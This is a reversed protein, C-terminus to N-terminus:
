VDAFRVKANFLMNNTQRYLTLRDLAKPSNNTQNFNIVQTNAGGFAGTNRNLGTTGAAEKLTGRAGSIDSQWDLSTALTNSIEDAAEKISKIVSLLGIEFGEGTYEGLEEMVKSPSHIGLENKFATVLSNVIKKVDTTFYKADGGLGQLFGQMTQTGITKLTAPLSAFAKEIAADYDGAVKNLDSKYLNKSLQESLSLKKDYASSYAKLEADSMELLREIFAKGEEMNYSTIQNFLQSSVKGKIKNLSAAYTELDKIQDNLSSVRMVKANSVTFLEGTDKLKKALNEQKSLLDNFKTQYTNNIETISGGLVEKAKEKFEAVADSFGDILSLRSWDFGSEVSATMDDIAKTVMDANQSIGDAFGEATYAGLKKTVKSPSKIGLQKKFTAIMGDVFTKISKDMYKTNTTLGSVFGKLCQQGIKELEKDLGKFATKIEKNYEKEINTFDNKYIEKALKDAANLKATYAKNYANLEATSMKLLRDVFAEGEEMDYSAIQDFLEGSVKGKIKKLKEAYQKIQETQAKIDATTMLNANNLSFLNGADKLKEILSNQKNLLSDYRDNYKSTINEMTSNILDQAATQYENMASSFEGMFASSARQYANKMNQQTTIQKNYISQIQATQKTLRNQEAKVNKQAASQEAKIRKTESAQAAKLQKELTKLQKKQEETRKSTSIDKIKEIENQLKKQTKASEKEIKAQAKESQKTISAQIKASANQAAKVEKDSKKQLTSITKDFDALMKENKYQMWGSTYSMKKTLANSFSGSAKEAIEAFNYNNLKLLEGVVSKVMKKSTNVLQSELSAIGNIYGQTFNKGSKYTLKSPSGEQQADQLSKIADLGMDAAANVAYKTMSKIGNIYGEGFYVGSQTTLKSPSGEKQGTALGGWAARALSYAKDWAAQVLSGIGNIFGQAFNVGSTEADGSHSDAGSVAEGALSAGASNASSNNSSIANIYENAANNGPTQMASANSDAGSATEGAMNQGMTKYRDFNAQIVNTYEKSSNEGANKFDALKSIAGNATTQAAVEGSKKYDGTHSDIKNKYANAADEGASEFEGNQSKAGSVAEGAAQAGTSNFEGNYTQLTNTYSDAADEAASEFEGSQQKMGDATTSAIAGGEKNAASKKSDLGDIYDDSKEEAIKRWDGLGDFLALNGGVGLDSSAVTVRPMGNNLGNTLANTSDTAAQGNKEVWKDLEAGALENVRKYQNVLEDSVNGNKYLEQIDDLDNKTNVYQQLLEKKSALTHNVLGYQMSLLADNMKQANGETSASMADQYYEITNQANGWNQSAQALAANTEDLTNKAAELNKQAQGAKDAVMYPMNAGNQSYKLVEDIASNYENQAKTLNDQATKASEKAQKLDQFYKLENQLADKYHGEFAAFKAEIKKKEILDDISKGLKGNADINEKINEVTTDLSTALEELLYTALDEYGEKVKGNEDILENYQDKLSKIKDTEVDINNGTEKREEKQRKIAETSADISDILERQADSLGYAKEANEEWIKNQKESYAYLAMLSGVIAMIPLAAMNIGLLKTVAALAETATKASTLVGIFGSIATTVAVIKNSIFIVALVKGITKIINILRDSNNVVYLFFDAAKKAIDGIADGVKDWNVKDLATGFTEIGDRMSDKARNFLKIMIGEIKSKMLTLAGSVNDNMTDSMAQAAGESNYVAETLKDYDATTANVIALLGSMANQGAIQKAYQAQEEESLNAFAGRLDEMVTSLDKMNGENDTLSLGLKQMAGACEKPPAALRTLIGRLATGAKDAKIGSNAMLGIAVATDEINFGLAGALPAAYQFTQGMMEVNTNANASAAAMVDAFHGADKAEYGMATLADTVIDSTTALDSGSAAALSMIGDIGDIMDETKWGAMAMYNFAEASETASFKTKAGMEEAKATLADLEEGNAGSVAAVQSMAAEFNSGVEFTEKALDKLANITERIGDALLDALAGKMVTFGDAAKDAAEDMDDLSDDFEDAARDAEELKSKNEQLESSLEQIEKATNEAEESLGKGELVLDSYRKKLTELKDEQESISGKLKDSASLYKQSGDAADDMSDSIESLKKEYTDLQKETNAIAAKQENIKIRVRDAAASNEGYAKVTAELEQEMLELKKNQADLVGALQKTKASLGDASKTWDDMGAAAAKFESNVLKIQREAAQMQSKLQSIDAKFKVTTDNSM